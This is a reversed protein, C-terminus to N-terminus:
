KQWTILSISLIPRHPVEFEHSITEPRILEIVKSYTLILKHIVSNLQPISFDWIFSVEDRTLLLGIYLDLLLHSSLIIWGIQMQMRLNVGLMLWEWIVIELLGLHGSVLLELSISDIGVLDLILV